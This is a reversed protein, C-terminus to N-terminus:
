LSPCITVSACVCAWVFSAAFVKASFAIIPASNNNYFVRSAYNQNTSALMNNRIDVSPYSSSTYLYLGYSTSGQSNVLVSNNWFDLYRPYRVYAAYRTSTSQDAAIFM